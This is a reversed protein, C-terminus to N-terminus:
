CGFILESLQQKIHSRDTPDTSANLADLLEQIREADAPEYDRVANMSLDEEHESLVRNAKM